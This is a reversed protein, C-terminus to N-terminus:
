LQVRGLRFAVELALEHASRVVDEISRAGTKRRIRHRHSALTSRALAADAALSALDDYDMSGRLTRHEGATLGHRDSIASAALTKVLRGRAGPCLLEQAMTVGNVAARPASGRHAEDDACLIYGSEILELANTVDCRRVDIVIRHDSLGGVEALDSVLAVRGALDTRENFAISVARPTGPRRLAYSLTGPSKVFSVHFVERTVDWRNRAKRDPEIVLVRGCRRHVGSAREQEERPETSSM